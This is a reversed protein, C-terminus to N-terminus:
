ESLVSIMIEADKNMQGTDNSWQGGGGAGWCYLRWKSNEPLNERLFDAVSQARRASLIWKQKETREKGALGVVYITPPNQGTFSEQLSLSYKTLYEKASGSLDWKGRDFHIDTVNFDKSRCTIQSPTIKMTKELDLVIRRLMEAQSDTSRESVDSGEKSRYKVKAHDLKPVDYKSSMFGSIGFCDMESKFASQTTKFRSASQTGAMSLLLVFFTLLLTVMDSFTVIYAPVGPAGMDANKKKKRSM